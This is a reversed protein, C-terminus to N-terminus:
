LGNMVETICGPIGLGLCISSLAMDRRQILIPSAEHNRIM